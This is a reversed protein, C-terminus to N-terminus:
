AYKFKEAVLKCYKIFEKQELDWKMTNLDKHIWQVNGLIYGKSSDIRDLSATGKDKYNIGFNIDLDTLACKKNQSIFLDWIYELTIEVALKRKKAGKVLHCFYTGSIEGFGQWHWSTSGKNTLCGCSLKKRALLKSATVEITNGCDCKCNWRHRHNKLGAYEVCTLKGFKKGLLNRKKIKRTKM